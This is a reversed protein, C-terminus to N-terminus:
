LLSSDRQLPIAYHLRTVDLMDDLLVLVVTTNTNITTTSGIQSAELELTYLGKVERSNKAALYWAVVTMNMATPSSETALSINAAM